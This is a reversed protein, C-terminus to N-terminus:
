QIFETTCKYVKSKNNDLVWNNLEEECKLVIRKDEILKNTWKERDLKFGCYEVYALIRVFKNDLALSPLLSLDKLKITQKDKIQGLYKVDGAAYRIVQVSLGEKHILGRVEKSM